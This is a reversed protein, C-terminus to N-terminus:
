EPWKKVTLLGQTDQVVEFYYPGQTCMAICMAVGWGVGVSTCLAQYRACQVSDQKHAQGAHQVLM